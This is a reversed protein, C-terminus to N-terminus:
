AHPMETHKTLKALVEQEYKFSTVGTDLAKAIQALGYSDAANDDHFEVGYKKFVGLLIENKGGKGVGLIFKKLGDPSVITPFSTEDAEFNMSLITTKVTGALEGAKERGFKSGNAYGEMCIHDIPEQLDGAILAHRLWCQVAYLRTAGPGEKNPDFKKVQTESTGDSFLLTLGFGGFSQDLGVYTM